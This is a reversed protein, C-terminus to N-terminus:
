AERKAVIRDLRLLQRRAWWSRLGRPASEFRVVAQDLQRSLRPDSVPNAQAASACIACAQVDHPEDEGARSTDSRFLSGASVIM